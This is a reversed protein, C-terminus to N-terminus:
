THEAFWALESESVGNARLYGWMAHGPVVRGCLLDFTLWRRENLFAAEGALSPRSFVTCIDETQILQAAPNVRRIRAMGLVTARCQNILARAFSRGDAKHPYWFGYLGSFRATTLPENVITYADVWPYREAVRSAFAALGDPFADDILSTWRPGSGHHVLGVIPRIGATRLVELRADTWSWDDVGPSRAVREWLVPYRLTRIGLAAIRDLDGHRIHHRTLVSQDFYTDRVRNLTCEVGGWLQPPTASLTM